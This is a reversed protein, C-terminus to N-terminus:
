KDTKIESTFRHGHKRYKPLKTSRKMTVLKRKDKYILGLGGNRHAQNIQKKFYFKDLPDSVNFKEMLWETAYLWIAGILVTLGMGLVFSLAIVGYIPDSQTM